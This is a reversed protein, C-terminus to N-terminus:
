FEKTAEILGNKEAMKLADYDKKTLDAYALAFDAIAEPLEDSKGIYGTIEPAGGSKAHSKALTWGCILAYNILIAPYHSEITTSGKM